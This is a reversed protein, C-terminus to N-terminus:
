PECRRDTTGEKVGKTENLRVQALEALFQAAASCDADGRGAASAAAFIQSTVGGLFLPVGFAKASDTALNVDKRMLDLKFGPEFSGKLLFTPLKLDMMKSYGSSAKIVTFLTDPSAGCKVGLAFAEGIALLHIAAM